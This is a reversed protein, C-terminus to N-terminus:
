TRLMHMDRAAMVSLPSPREKWYLYYIKSAM